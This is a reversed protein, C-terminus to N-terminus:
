VLGCFGFGLFFNIGNIGHWMVIFICTVVLKHLKLVCWVCTSPFSPLAKHPRCVQWKDNFILRTWFLLLFFNQVKSPAKIKWFSNPFRLYFNSHHQVLFNFLSKRTFKSSCDLSWTHRNPNHSFHFSKLLNLLIM